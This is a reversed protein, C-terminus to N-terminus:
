KKLAIWLNIYIIPILILVEFRCCLEVLPFLNIIPLIVITSLSWCRNLRQIRSCFSPPNWSPVTRLFSLPFSSIPLTNTGLLFHSWLVQINTSVGDADHLSTTSSYKCWYALCIWFWQDSERWDCSKMRTTWSGPWFDYFVIVMM